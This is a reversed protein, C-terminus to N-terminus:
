KCSCVNYQERAYKTPVDGNENQVRQLMPTSESSSDGSHTEFKHSLNSLRVEESIQQEEDVDEIVQVVETADETDKSKM